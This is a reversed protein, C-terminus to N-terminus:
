LSAIFVNYSGQAGISSSGINFIEFGFGLFVLFLLLASTIKGYGVIDGVLIVRDVWRIWLM